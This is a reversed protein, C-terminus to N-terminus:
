PLSVEPKIDNQGYKEYIRHLCSQKNNWQSAFKSRICMISEARRTEEPCDLRIHVSVISGDDARKWGFPSKIDNVFEKRIILKYKDYGYYNGNKVRSNFSQLNSANFVDNVDSRANGSLLKIMYKQMATNM